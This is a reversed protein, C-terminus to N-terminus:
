KLGANLCVEQRKSRYNILDVGKQNLIVKLALDVSKFRRLMVIIDLQSDVNM